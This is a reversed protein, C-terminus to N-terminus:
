CKYLQSTLGRKPCYRLVPYDSKCVKFVWLFSGSRRDQEFATHAPCNGLNHLIDPQGSRLLHETIIYSYLFIMPIFAQWSLLSHTISVIYSYYIFVIIIFYLLVITTWWWKIDQAYELASTWPWGIYKCHKTNSEGHTKKNGTSKNQKQMAWNSLGEILYFQARFSWAATQDESGLWHCLLFDNFCIEFM